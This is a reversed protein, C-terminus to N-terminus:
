DDRNILVPTPTKLDSINNNMIMIDLPKYDKRNKM